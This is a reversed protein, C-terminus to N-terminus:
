SKRWRDAAERSKSKRKPRPLKDLVTDAAKLLMEILTKM